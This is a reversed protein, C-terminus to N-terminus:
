QKRFRTHQGEIMLSAIEEPTASSLTGLPALAHAAHKIPRRPGFLFNTVGALTKNTGAYLIRPIAGFQMAYGVAFGFPDRCLAVGARLAPLRGGV